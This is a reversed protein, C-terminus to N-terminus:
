MTLLLVVVLVLYILLMSAEMITTIRDTSVGGM